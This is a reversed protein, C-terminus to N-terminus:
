TCTAVLALDPMFCLCSNVLLSILTALWLGAADNLPYFENRFVASIKKKGKSASFLLCRASEAEIRKTV